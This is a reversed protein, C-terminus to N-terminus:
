YKLFVLSNATSDIRCYCDIDVNSVSADVPPPQLFPIRLFKALKVHFCSHQLKKKIFNFVEAVKTFLSELVPTKM